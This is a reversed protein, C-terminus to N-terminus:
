LHMLQVLFPKIYNICPTVMFILCDRTIFNGGACCIFCFSREGAYHLCFHDWCILLQMVCHHSFANRNGTIHHLQRAVAQCVRTLFGRWWACLVHPMRQDESKQFLEACKLLARCWCGPLYSKPEYLRNVPVDEAASVNYLTRIALLVKHRAKHTKISRGQLCAMVCRKGGVWCMDVYFPSLIFVSKLRM